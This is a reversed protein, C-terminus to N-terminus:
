QRMTGCETEPDRERGRSETPNIYDEHDPTGEPPVWGILDTAPIIWISDILPASRHRIFHEPIRRFFADPLRHGIYHYYPGSIFVPDSDPLGGTFMGITPAASSTRLTVTPWWSWPFRRFPLPAKRHPRHTFQHEPSIGCAKGVLFIGLSMSSISGNGPSAEDGSNLKEVLNM